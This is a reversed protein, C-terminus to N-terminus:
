LVIIDRNLCGLVEGTDPAVGTGNKRMPRSLHLVYRSPYVLADTPSRFSLNGEYFSM